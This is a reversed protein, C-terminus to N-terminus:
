RKWSLSHSIIKLSLLRIDGTLKIRLIGTQEHAGMDLRCEAKRWEAPYSGPPMFDASPLVHRSLPEEPSSTNGSWCGITKGNWILEARGNKESSLILEATKPEEPLRNQVFILEAEETDNAAAATMEFGGRVYRINRYDDCTFVPILRSLEREEFRQGDIDVDCSAEEALANKGAYIHYTGGYIIYEGAVVDFVQLESKDICLEAKVSEGPKIGKIRKFGILRRGYGAESFKLDKFDATAYIQIVEDTTRNGANRVKLSIEIKDGSYAAAMDSYRIEGYSLGYGFPYMWGESVYRYTRKGAIRYDNMDPLVDESVPWGQVLRGAPAERGFLVAAVADGMYESGSASLLLADVRKEAGAMTYPYNTLLVTIIKKGSKLFADLLRQQYPPLALTSRDFDERAPVMPNCGLVLIVTDADKTDKVAQAVGDFVKEIIYSVSPLAADAKIQGAANVRVPENFRDVLKIGNEADKLRFKCTVFWDFVDDRDAALMGTEDDPVEHDISQIYKGTSVSRITCFGEGWDQIYFLDGNEPETLGISGDEEIHWARDGVCIRYKDLGRVPTMKRDLLASIGDAVTHRFPPIGGYWDGLWEDALPGAIAISDAKGPDLPLSQNKNELLVLSEESLRRCIARAEDTDLAGADGYPSSGEPDYIGLKMGVMLINGLAVDLEKESLLSLELADRLALEVKEPKETMSDVGARVSAALCEALTGYEHHFEKLHNMAFGDSVAHFLGYKDKLLSQVEKDMMGPVGNVRNYATMVGLAGGDRIIKLFAPLYYDFKDKLSISSDAFFRGNEVNNAFYHKLTAACMVYDKDDGRMGKVYAAANEGTLHPDEGYGEENRGWRPDREMDVTPAWRSLGTMRHRKYCARAETGVIRGAEQMLEKDWAASMGIPNPFSTTVDPETIGNQINRAEVGHAAEGGLVFGEVGLRGVGHEPHSYLIIKEEMTMHSLLWNIREEHTLAPDHFSNSIGDDAALLRDIYGLLVEESYIVRGEMGLKRGGDVNDQRDDFFICESPDLSYKRFLDEYIERGPKLHHTEFSVIHGDLDNLFPLGKTHVQLMRSSYNSLLYIRYGAAKLEHIKDWVRQRPLPMRELHGFIYRIHEEDKPYKRVYDELVDDFPRLEIDFELWLPDHFLRNAFARAEEERPLTEMILELWRYSLLVGGVDFIVNKYKM